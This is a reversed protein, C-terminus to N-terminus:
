MLTRTVQVHHARGIRQAWARPMTLSQVPWEITEKATSKTSKTSKTSVTSQTTSQTTFQTSATSSITSTTTTQTSTTTTTSSSSSATTTTTTSTSSSHRGPYQRVGGNEMNDVIKTKGVRTLADHMAQFAVNSSDVGSYVLLEEGDNIERKARVVVNSYKGYCEPRDVDVTVNADDKNSTVGIHQLKPSFYVSGNDFIRAHRMVIGTMWDFWPLDFLIAMSATKLFPLSNVVEDYRSMRAYVDDTVSASLDPEMHQWLDLESAHCPFQESSMVLGITHMLLMYQAAAAGFGAGKANYAEILDTIYAGKGCLEKHFKANASVECELSCWIACSCGNCQRIPKDKSPRILRTCYTCHYPLVTACLTPEFSDIFGYRPINGRAFVGFRAKPYLRSGTYVETVDKKKEIDRYVVRNNKIYSSSEVPSSRRDLVVTYYNHGRAHSIVSESWKLGHPYTEARPIPMLLSAIPREHIAVASMGSQLYRHIHPLANQTITASTSSSASSPVNGMRVSKQTAKEHISKLDMIKNRSEQKWRKASAIQQGDEMIAAMHAAQNAMYLHAGSEGMLGAADYSLKTDNIELNHLRQKEVHEDVKKKRRMVVREQFTKANELAQKNVEDDTTVVHSSDVNVDDSMEVIVSTDTITIGDEGVGVTKMRVKRSRKNQQAVDVRSEETVVNKKSSDLSSDVSGDVSDDEVIIDKTEDDVNVDSRTKTTRSSSTYIPKTASRRDKGVAGPLLRTYWYAYTAFRPKAWHDKFEIDTRPECESFRILLQVLSRVATDCHIADLTQRKWNIKAIALLSGYSERILQLIEMQQESCVAAHCEAVWPIIKGPFNDNIWQKQPVSLQDRSSIGTKAGNKDCQDRCPFQTAIYLMIVKLITDVPIHADLIERWTIPHSIPTQQSTASHSLSTSSLSSTIPISSSSSSLSSSSLSTVTATHSPIKRLLNPRHHLPAPKCLPQQSAPTTVAVNKMPQLLKSMAYKVEQRIKVAQSIGRTRRLVSRM